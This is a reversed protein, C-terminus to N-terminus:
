ASALYLAAAGIVVSAFPGALGMWFETAANAADRKMQAIGGLAFLTISPVPVGRARAVATLGAATWILGRPWAPNVAYLHGALSMTLLAAMIFWSFHLGVEIGFIRGLRVQGPLM